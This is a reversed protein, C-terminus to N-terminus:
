RCRCVQDRSPPLFRDQRQLASWSGHLNAKLPRGSQEKGDTTNYPWCITSELPFLRGMQCRQQPNQLDFRLASLSRLLLLSTVQSCSFARKLLYLYDLPLFYLFHSPCTNPSASRIHVALTAPVAIVRVFHEVHSRGPDHPYSAV